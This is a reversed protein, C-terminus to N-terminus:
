RPRGRMGDLSVKGGKTIKLTKGDPATITTDRRSAAPTRSGDNGLVEASAPKREEPEEAQRAPKRPAVKADDPRRARRSEDVFPAYLDDDPGGSDDAGAAEPEDDAEPEEAKASKEADQEEASPQPDAKSDSGSDCGVLALAFGLASLRPLAKM